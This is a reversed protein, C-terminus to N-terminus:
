KLQALSQRKPSHIEEKLNTKFKATYAPVYMTVIVAISHSNGHTLSICRECEPNWWDQYIRLKEGDWFDKITGFIKKKSALVNEMSKGM